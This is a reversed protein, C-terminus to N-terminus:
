YEKERYTIQLSLINFLWGVFLLRKGSPIEISIFGGRKKISIAKLVRNITVVYPYCSTIKQIIRVYPLTYTQVLPDEFQWQTLFLIRNHKVKNM